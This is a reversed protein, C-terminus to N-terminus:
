EEVSESPSRGFVLVIIESERAHNVIPKFVFAAFDQIETTIVVDPDKDVLLEDHIETPHVGFIGTRYLQRVVTSVRRDTIEIFAIGVFVATRAGASDVQIKL